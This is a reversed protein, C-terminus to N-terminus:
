LSLNEKMDKIDKLVDKLCLSVNHKEFDLLMKSNINQFKYEFLKLLQGIYIYIYINFHLSHM